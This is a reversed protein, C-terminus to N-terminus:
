SMIGDAVLAARIAVVLNYLAQMNATSDLGFAGTVYAAPAGGSAVAGQAAKTNCGFGSVVTLQGSTSFTAAVVNNTIVRVPINNTSGVDSSTGGNVRVVVIGGGSTATVSFTATAGVNTIDVDGSNKVRFVPTTNDYGVVIDTTGSGNSAALAAGAVGGGPVAMTIPDTGDSFFGGFYRNSASTNGTGWVGVSNVPSAGSATAYLGIASGAVTANAARLAYTKATGTYGSLTSVVFASQEFAANGAGTVTVGNATANATFGTGFATTSSFAISRGDALAPDSLVVPAITVHGLGGVKFVLTSSTDGMTAPISYAAVHSLCNQGISIFGQAVQGSTRAVVPGYADVAYGATGDNQTTLITLDAASVGQDPHTSVYKVSNNIWASFFTSTDAVPATAGLGSDLTNDLYTNQQLGSGGDHEYLLKFTAGGAVTRYLRRTVAGRRIAPVALSVQKTTVTITTIPGITTEGGCTETYAYKVTGTVNGAAGTDTAVITGVPPGLPRGDGIRPSASWASAVGVGGSVLVSGVAVDALWGAGNVSADRTFLSGVADAGDLLRTLLATVANWNSPRLKTTDAGDPKLSTFLTPTLTM